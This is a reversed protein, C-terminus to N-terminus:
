PLTGQAHRTAHVLGARDVARHAPASTTKSTRLTGCLLLPPWWRVKKDRNQNSDLAEFFIQLYPPMGGGGGGGSGGADPAFLHENLKIGDADLDPYM